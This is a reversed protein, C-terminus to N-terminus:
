HYKKKKNSHVFDHFSIMFENFHLRKKDITLNNYFFNLLMTKGVGVDGVLYFGNKNISKSFLIKLINRKFCDKYFQILAEIIKMQNDNIELKKKLCYNLFIKKLNKM